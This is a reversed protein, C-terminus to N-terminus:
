DRRELDTRMRELAAALRRRVTGAPMGLQKAIEGSRYDFLHRLVVIARDEPSLGALAELLDPPLSPRAPSPADEAQPSPRPRRSERRTHDIAKNVVIRHLWPGFPRGLRFRSLGRIAAILGEQAIDEAADPDASVMMAVRYAGGWHEAVLAELAEECGRRARQM